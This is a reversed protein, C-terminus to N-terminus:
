RQRFCQHRAGPRRHGTPHGRGASPEGARTPFIGRVKPGGEPGGAKWPVGRFSRGGAAGTTAQGGGQGVHRGAPVRTIGPGGGGGLLSVGGWHDARDPRIRRCFGGGRPKGNRGAARGFRGGRRSGHPGRTQLKAGIGSPRAGRPGRGPSHDRAFRGGRSCGRFLGQPTPPPGQNLGRDGGGAPGGGTGRARAPAFLGSPRPAPGCGKAVVRGGRLAPSPPSNSGWDARWLARYGYFVRVMRPALPTVWQRGYPPGGPWPDGLRAGEPFNGRGRGMGEAQKKEAAGRRLGGPRQGPPRHRRRNERGARFDDSGSPRPNTGGGGGAGTERLTPGFDRRRSFFSTKRDGKAKRSGVAGPRLTTAEPAAGGASTVTQELGTRGARAPQDPSSEAQPTGGPV